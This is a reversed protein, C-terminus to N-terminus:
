AAETPSPLLLETRRMARTVAVRLAHQLWLGSDGGKRRKPVSNAVTTLNEGIQMQMKKEDTILPEKESRTDSWKKDLHPRSGTWLRPDGDNTGAERPQQDCLTQALYAGPWVQL